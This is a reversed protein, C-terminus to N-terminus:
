QKQKAMHHEMRKLNNLEISDKGRPPISRDMEERMQKQEEWFRRDMEKRTEEVERKM